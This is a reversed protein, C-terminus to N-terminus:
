LSLATVSGSVNTKHESANGYSMAVNSVKYAAFGIAPLGTLTEGNAGVVMSQGFAMKMWGESYPFGLNTVGTTASLASATGAAGM